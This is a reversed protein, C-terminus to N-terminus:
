ATVMKPILRVPLKYPGNLTPYPYPVEPGAREAREFRKMFEQVVIRGELRALPAGICIHLGHGFSLHKRLTRPERTIDFTLPDEFVEPDLNGSFWMLGIKTDPEVHHGGLEIPENNTRFLGHVPSEIRLTEELAQDILGPDAKLMEWQDPHEMMLNFFSGIFVTTTAAGAVLLFQAFSLIHNTPIREGDIRSMVLLSLMDEGLEKGAEDRSIRDQIRPLFYQVILGLKELREAEMTQGKQLVSGAMVDVWSRLKPYDEFPLDLLKCIVFMPVQDALEEMLDCTGMTAMADLRSSVFDTIEGEMAHIIHPNFAPAIARKQKSHLPPDAAVLVPATNEDAYNTGPGTRVSFMENDRVIGMIDAHRFVAFWGLDADKHVPCRDQMERYKEHPDNQFETSYFDFETSM